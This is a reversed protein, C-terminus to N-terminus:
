LEDTYMRSITIFIIYLLLGISVIFIMPYVILNKFFIFFKSNSMTRILKMFALELELFVGKTTNCYINIREYRTFYPRKM